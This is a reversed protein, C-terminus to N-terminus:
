PEVGTLNRLESMDILGSQTAARLRATLTARSMGLQRALSRLSMRRDLVAAKRTLAILLLDAYHAYTPNEAMDTEAPSLVIAHEDQTPNTHAPNPIDSAHSKVEMESNLFWAPISIPTLIRQHHLATMSRLCNRLERVNGRRWNSSTLIELAPPSVTFPGGAMTRCFHEIFQVVEQRRMRLPPLVFESERLRQWLDRRFTGCEVLTEVDENTAALVRLQIRKTQTSGVRRVEQNELVRLLAAQAALPLSTVEDLFIWGGHAAELLGQRDHTAGTYAGRVSGFLEGELLSPAIAGCNVRVLPISTPLMSALLDCVVEKGTGSEGRILISSVASHIIAPLQAAIAQMTGGVAVGSPICKLHPTGRKLHALQYSSTIFRAFEHDALEKDIFNDAGHKLCQSIVESSGFASHMLIVADPFHERAMPCLAAGDVGTDDINVDLIIIDPLLDSCIRWFTTIDNASHVQYLSDSRLTHLLTAVRVTECPQDDLHVVILARPNLEKLNQSKLDPGGPKSPAISITRKILSDVKFRM